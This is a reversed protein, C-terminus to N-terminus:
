LMYLTNLRLHGFENVCVFKRDKMKRNPIMLTRKIGVFSLFYFCKFLISVDKSMMIFQSLQSHLSTLLGERQDDQGKLCTLILSLFPQHSLLSQGEGENDSGKRTKGEKSEEKRRSSWNGSELVQGAVKLIRGQVASPLKSVM